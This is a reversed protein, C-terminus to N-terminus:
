AWKWGGEGAGVEFHYKAIGLDTKTYFGSGATASVVNGQLAFRFKQQNLATPALSAAEVGRRFWDPMEGNCLCLEEVRKGKRPVGGTEGYGIVLVMLLKEGPHVAAAAKGKSYSAAVWCTNLGLRQAELVIREGYYGCAEQLTDGKKGVLAVYNRVNHFKGYRAMMGTFAAPEDLCLQIHLGSERNCDAVVRELQALVDGEIKRDTYRRVSHRARIAEQLDM